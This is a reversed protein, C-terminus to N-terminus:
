LYFRYRCNGLFIVENNRKLSQLGGHLRHEWKKHPERTKLDEFDDDKLLGNVDRHHFVLKKLPKLGCIIINNDM